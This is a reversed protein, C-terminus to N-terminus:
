WRNNRKLKPSGGFQPYVMVRTKPSGRMPTYVMDKKIKPSGDPAYNWASDVALDGYTQDYPLFSKVTEM